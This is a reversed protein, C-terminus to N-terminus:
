TSNVEVIKLELTACYPGVESIYLAYLFGLEICGRLSHGTSNVVTAAQNNLNINELFASM